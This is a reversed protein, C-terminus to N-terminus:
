GQLPGCHELMKGAGVGGSPNKFVSGFTRKNTPQTAKRQAVLDATLAKIEDESRPELLYEVRAVVQDSRLGSHRYDLQLEAPSVWGTGEPSVVLARAVM